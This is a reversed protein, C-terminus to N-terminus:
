INTRTFRYGLYLALFFVIACQASIVQGKLTTLMPDMFGPMARPLFFAIGVVTAAAVALSQKSSSVVKETMEQLRKLERLSGATGELIRPLDGGTQRGILLASVLVDLSISQVRAAMALLSEELTSGVRVEKLAVEIEEKLPKSTVNLTGSFADGISATTKLANALALAFGNVQDDLRRRRRGLMIGVAVPPAVLVGGAAFLLANTRVFGYMALLAIAGYLQLWATYAGRAPLFMRRFQADLHSAYAVAARRTAGKPDISSEYVFGGLGLCVFVFGVVKLTAVSLQAAALLEAFRVLIDKV